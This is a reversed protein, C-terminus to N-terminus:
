NTSSWAIKARYLLGRASQSTTMARQEDHGPKDPDDGGARAAVSPGSLGPWSPLFALGHTEVLGRNAITFQVNRRGKTLRRRLGNSTAELRLSGAFIDIVCNYARVLRAPVPLLIMDMSRRKVRRRAMCTAVAPAASGSTCMRVAPAAPLSLMPRQSWQTGPPVSFIRWCTWAQASLFLTSTVASKM